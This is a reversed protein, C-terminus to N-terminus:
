NELTSKQISRAKLSSFERLCYRNQPQSVKTTFKKGWTRAKGIDKITKTQVTSFGTKKFILVLICFKFERSM